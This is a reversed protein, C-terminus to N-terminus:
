GCKPKRGKLWGKEQAKKVAEPSDYKVKFHDAFQGASGKHPITAEHVETKVLQMTSTGTDSNFDHVHHWTYGDADSAKIGAEKYAQTFDRSRTGQLQIEVINSQGGTTPFLDSSGTFDVNTPIPMLGFTDIKSNTNNVYSYLNMQGSGLGIPDQSIYTGSDPSYYRFENYKHEELSSKKSTLEKEVNSKQLDIINVGFGFTQITFFLILLLYRL